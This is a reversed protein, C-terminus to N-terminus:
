RPWWNDDVFFRNSQFGVNLEVIRDNEAEDTAYPMNGNTQTIQDAMPFNGDVSRSNIFVGYATQFLNVTYCNENYAFMLDNLIQNRGKEDETVIYANLAAIVDVDQGQAGKVIFPEDKKVEPMGNMTALGKYANSLADWPDNMNWCMDTLYCYMDYTGNDAETWFMSGDIAQVKVDLGFRTLQESVIQASNIVMDWGSDACILFEPAKGTSDLWKGDANQQWGMEKLLAAAKAEDRTFDTLKTEPSLFQKAMTPPVGIGSYEPFEQGFYQVVERVKKKDIIYTMAQRFRVDDFPARKMNFVLGYSANDFMKYHVLDPNGALVSDLIDKPPTGFALDVEGNRLMAYSQALDAGARIFRIKEFHVKSQDYYDPNKIGVLQNDDVSEFKYPGTGIPKEPGFEKFATYVKTIEARLEKSFELGYARALAPKTAPIAKGILTLTQDAFDKYIHYPIRGNADKAILQIRMQKSVPKSWNYVITYDDPTEFSTLYKLVDANYYINYFCAIDKATFPEGDHWKVDKRLKVITQTETQELSEALQMYMKGTGVRVIVFLREYLIDDLSSAGDANFPNAHFAPPRSWSGEMQLTKETNITPEGAVRIETQGNTGKGSTATSANGSACGAVLTLVLCMVLALTWKQKM